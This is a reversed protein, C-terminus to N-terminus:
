KSVQEHSRMDPSEVPAGEVAALVLQRVLAARSQGRGAALVKLQAMASSSLRVTLQEM